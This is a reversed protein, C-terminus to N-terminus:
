VTEVTGQQEELFAVLAKLDNLALDAGKLPKGQQVADQARKFMGKVASQVDYATSVSAEPKFATWLTATASELDLVKEADFRFTCGAQLMAKDSKNQASLTRVPANALVWEVFALKRSGNPLAKFLKDLLSAESNAATHFMAALGLEQVQQDFNAYKKGLANIATATQKATLTTM